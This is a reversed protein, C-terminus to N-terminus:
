SGVSKDVFTMLYDYLGVDTQLKLKKRLRYRAVEVAKVSVHMLQAIEKTLLNMRIFACLKLENVTLDPHVQKLRLFYAENAYHINSQFNEWDEQTRLANRILSLLKRYSDIVKDDNTEKMAQTIAQKVKSLVEGRQVMNMTLNALQKDKNAIEDELKENKLKIVEKEKREIELRRLNLEKKHAERLKKRQFSLLWFVLSVTLLIYVIYAIPHLYWPVAIEFAYQRELSENGIGNRSKVRFLYKGPSLNTYEKDSRNSWATWKNDLGELMYSFEVQDQQDYYTSSFIFQLSNYTHKLEKCGSFRQNYGGFLVKQNKDVDFAKVMRLLVNPLSKNKQYALYDLLIGGRQGSIFIHEDDYAYLSEFGGLLQGNIEPFFLLTYAQHDNAKSFDLVGLKKDSSFWVNGKRDETMYQIPLNSLNTYQTSPEFRNIQKNYIYIGQKTTVILENRIFFVYNHMTSPLGQEEGYQEQRVIKKFDESLYLKFIGRYPHSVWVAHDSSDYHAFRLSEYSGEIQGKDVFSDGNFILHRLGMYTGAIIHQSPLVRSAMKYTWSGTGQHINKVYDDLVEFSGDEHGILLRGNVENISWVQGQSGKVKKFNAPSLEISRPLSSVLPTVYLGHSTGVYLKNQFIYMAYAPSSSSVDPYIFKIPSHIALYDIGDDLALWLNSDRDVFVDRVGTSQLGKTYTYHQILSGQKDMIVLGGSFMGVAYLGNNLNKVVSTRQSTLESDFNTSKPELKGKSLIFLGNKLTSVLLTDTSFDTIGTVVVKLDSVSQHLAVWKGNQYKMLGQEMDHAYVVDNVSTLFQWSSHPKDANIKDFYYHFINNNTQFFVHENVIAIHWVDAFKRDAEAIKDTLSHYSLEGDENAQFYGLEDQGGVYVKSKGDFCVSRIITKNPLPYLSWNGGDFTLLGEDNAFYLIGENDQSVSWNQLGGKYIKGSYNIIQPVAISHQSYAYNFLFFLLVCIFVHLKNIM